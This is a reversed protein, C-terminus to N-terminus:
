PNNMKIDGLMNVTGPAKGARCVPPNPWHLGSCLRGPVSAPVSPPAAQLETQTNEASPASQEGRHIVTWVSFGEAASRILPLAALATCGPQAGPAGTLDDKQKRNSFSVTIVTSTLPHFQSLSKSKEREIYIDFIYGLVM